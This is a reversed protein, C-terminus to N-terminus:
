LKSRDRERSPSPDSTAGPLGKWNTPIVEQVLIDPQKVLQGISNKLNISEARDWDPGSVIADLEQKATGM